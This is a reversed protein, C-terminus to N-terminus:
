RDDTIRNLMDHLSPARRQLQVDDRAREVHERKKGTTEALLGDLTELLDDLRDDDGGMQYAVSLHKLGKIAAQRVRGDDDDMAALYFAELQDIHSKMEDLTFHAPLDEDPKDKFIAFLHQRSLLERVFRAVSQQRYGDGDDYLNLGMEFADNFIETRKEVNVEELEDIVGNVKDPDGSALATRFNALRDSM